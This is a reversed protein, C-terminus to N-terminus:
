RARIQEFLKGISVSDDQPMSFNHGYAILQFM